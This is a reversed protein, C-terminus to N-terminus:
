QTDCLQAVNLYQPLSYKNRLTQLGSNHLKKVWLCIDKAADKILKEPENDEILGKTYLEEYNNLHFYNMVIYICAVAIVSSKYKTLNYDLLCSDLFYKGFFYQKKDFNFAKSLINYFNCATPVLINFELVRTIKNEFQLLEEKKYADGTLSACRQPPLFYIENEKCSILFATIGLLQLNNRAVKEKSLYADIIWVTQYLTEEKYGFRILLDILWDILVARMTDNIFPQNNMYGYIPINKLKKEDELLIFYADNLTDGLFLTSEQESSFKFSLIDEKEKEKEKEEQLKPSPNQEKQNENKPLNPSEKSIIINKNDNSLNESKGSNINILNNNANLSNHIINKNDHESISNISNEQKTDEIEMESEKVKIKEEKKDEEDSKKLNQNNKPLNSKNTDKISQLPIRKTNNTNKNPM